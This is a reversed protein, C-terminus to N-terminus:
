NSEKLVIKFNEKSKIKWEKEDFFDFDGEIYDEKSTKPEGKIKYFAKNELNFIWGRKIIEKRAMEKSERNQDIYFIFFLTDLDFNELKEERLRLPYVPYKNCFSIMNRPYYIISDEPQIMNNISANLMESVNLNKSRIENLSHHYKNPDISYGSSGEKKKPEGGQTSNTSSTNSPKPNQNQNQNTHHSQNQNVNQNKFQNSNQNPNPNQNTNQNQSQNQNQNLNQNQNNM